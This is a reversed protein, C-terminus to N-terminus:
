QRLVHLRVEGDSAGTVLCDKDVWRVCLCRITHRESTVAKDSLLPDSPAIQKLITSQLPLKASRQDFVKMYGDQCSTAIKFNDFPHWELGTIAKAHSKYVELLGLDKPAAINKCFDWFAVRGDMHGTALM